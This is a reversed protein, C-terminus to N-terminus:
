TGGMRDDANAAAPPLTHPDRGSVAIAARLAKRARDLRSLVTGIPIHLIEATERCTHGEMFVTLFTEKLKNDLTGLAAQLTEENALVDIPPLTAAAPYDELLESSSGTHIRRQADRVLHSYRYRMIQFLWARAREPHRQSAISHWAETFTEQVLDEAAEKRGTLRYAFRYLEPAFQRVWQEYKNRFPDSTPM